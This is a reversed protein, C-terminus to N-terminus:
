THCGYLAADSDCSLAHRGLHRFYYDRREYSPKGTLGNADCIICAMTIDVELPQYSINPGNKIRSLEPQIYENRDKNSWCKYTENLFLSDNADYLLWFLRCYGNSILNRFPFGLPFKSYSDEQWDVVFRSLLKTFITASEGQYVIM